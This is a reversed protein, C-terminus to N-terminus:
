NYIANKVGQFILIPLGRKQNSGLFIQVPNINVDIDQLSMIM